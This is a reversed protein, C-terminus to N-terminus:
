DGSGRGDGLEAVLGLLDNMSDFEFLDVAGGQTTGQARLTDYLGALAATAALVGSLPYLAIRFGMTGLEAASLLPTRGGEIMNAVLTVGRLEQGIRQLEDLTQPAEVFVADAGAEAYIRGRRIAADLGLGARADTRATIHFSADGRAELAAQLKPLYEEVEIVRKGRMHGCRKPWQQDELFCGSAGRRILGKVIQEVHTPGGYGTDADVLLSLNTAARIRDSADLVEHAGVLGIDPQALHSASLAYGSLFAVQFGAREALRASLPDYVGPVLLADERELWPFRASAPLTDHREENSDAM